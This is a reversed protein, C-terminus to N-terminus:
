VKWIYRIKRRSIGYNEQLDQDVDVVSERLCGLAECTKRSAENDPDCTIVVSSKGGRAIESRLLLCAKRAYHKGRWPPDIHYGIHGYFYIGRGEGARYAIRGIEQRSGHKTIRWERERSFGLERDNRPDRLPILDIEGDSFEAKRSFFLGM